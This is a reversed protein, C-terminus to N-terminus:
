CITLLEFHYRTRYLNIDIFRPHWIENKKDLKWPSPFKEIYGKNDIVEFVNINVKFHLALINIMTSTGWENTNVILNAIEYKTLNRSVVKFDRFEILIDNYFDQNVLIKDAVIKRLMRPTLALNDPLGKIISNFLCDGDGDIRIRKLYIM